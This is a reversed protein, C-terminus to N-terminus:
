WWYKPEIYPKHRAQNSNLVNSSVVYEIEMIFLAM